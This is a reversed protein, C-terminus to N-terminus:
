RNLLQIRKKAIDLSQQVTAPKTGKRAALEPFKIGAIKPVTYKGRSEKPTTQPKSKSRSVLADIERATFKGDVGFREIAENDDTM